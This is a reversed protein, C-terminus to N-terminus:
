LPYPRLTDLPTKDENRLPHRCLQLLAARRTYRHPDSPDRGFRTWWNSGFGLIKVSMM